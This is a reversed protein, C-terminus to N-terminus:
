RVGRKAQAAIQNAQQGNVFRANIGANVWRQAEGPTVGPSVLRRCSGCGVEPRIYGAEYKWGKPIAGASIVIIEPWSATVVNPAGCNDCELSFAVGEQTPKAKVRSHNAAADGGLGGALGGFGLNNLDIDQFHHSHNKSM